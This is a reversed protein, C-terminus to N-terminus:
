IVRHTAHASHGAKLTYHDRRYLMAVIMALPMAPHSADALWPLNADAELLRLAIIVAVPAFMAFAMEAGHRWGHGRVIMWAVMPVTMFVAMALDNLNTGSKFAAAYSSAAPTLNDLLYLIAMGAMMALLMELLHLIFRGVNSAANRIRHDHGQTSATDVHDITTKATITM